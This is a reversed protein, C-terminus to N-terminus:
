GWGQRGKRVLLCMAFTAPETIFVPSGCFNSHTVRTKQVGISQYVCLFFFFFFTSLGVYFIFIPKCNIHYHDFVPSKKGEVAHAHMNCLPLHWLQM